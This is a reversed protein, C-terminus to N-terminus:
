LNFLRCVSPKEAYTTLLFLNDLAKIVTDGKPAILTGERVIATIITNPPIQIDRIAKGVIPLDEDVMINLIETNSKELALLELSYANKQPKGTVLKLKEAMWDLTSGQILASFLVAFFVANFILRGNPINAVVPYTALVIAVAGKIGGWSIFLREAFTFRSAITSIFVAIPRAVFVLILAILIGEKWVGLLEHPFVLLGLILFLGVVGITSIGELFHSIARKYIFESNGLFFGTFFAAIFGNAGILDGFGYSLLSIGMILVYYFGGADTKLINFLWRGVRSIMWGILFGGGFQWVVEWVISEPSDTVGKVISLITLTMVIAMPDNSASEVELTSAVNRKIAKNRFVSFVAAADTSSIISGLLLSFIFDLGFVLHTLLGVIVATIIVGLTALSFASKWVSRLASDKTKFGGEFLIFILAINAIQQALNVDDFYILNLFDSGFLMGIGLFVVLAPIGIKSSVKTSFAAMLILISWFLVM